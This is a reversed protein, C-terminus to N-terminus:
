LDYTRAHHWPPSLSIVVYPFTSEGRADKQFSIFTMRSLTIIELIRWDGSDLRCDLELVEDLSIGSGGPRCLVLRELQGRRAGRTASAHWRPGGGDISYFLIACTVLRVRCCLIPWCLLEFPSLSSNSHLISFSIAAFACNTKMGKGRKVLTFCRNMILVISLGSIM